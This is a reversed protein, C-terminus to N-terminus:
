SYLLPYAIPVVICFMLVGEDLFVQKIEEWWIYATDEFFEKIKHFISM